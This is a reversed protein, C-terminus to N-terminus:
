NKKHSNLVAPLATLRKRLLFMIVAVTGVAVIAIILWFGTTAWLAPPFDTLVIVESKSSTVSISEKTAKTTVTTLAYDARYHAEVDYTGSPLRFVVTGSANSIELGQAFGGEAYVIVYAGQVPSMTNSLVNVKLQYVECKLTYPGDSDVLQAAQLVVRDKWSVTFSYNGATVDTLNILGNQSTYRPLADKTQNPWTVYVQAKPLPSGADDVFLFAPDYYVIEGITFTQTGEEIFPEFTGLELSRQYGNNDIVSVTITYEGLLATSLYPWDAEYMNWFNIQWLGDTTRAMDQSVVASGAPNRITINVKYVDYGGFPDTVNVRVFVHRQSSTWNYYFLNTESNDYSYTKISIPKAYDEVPLIVKSPYFPSDYWIRTDASSGANVEVRVHVTTDVNFSHNLTTSLNYNYVPVDIYGGVSSTVTPSVGGSNWLVAGGITEETFQLTFGTPKYASSNVWVFVQWLGNIAVPGALNPYLYFDVAIKPQGTPKYFSNNFAQQQTLYSFLKTTNMIYKTEIGAASVPTDVYHLYFEKPKTVEGAQSKADQMVTAFLAFSALFLLMVVVFSKKKRIELHV